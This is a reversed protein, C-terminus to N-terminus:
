AADRGVIRGIKAGMRLPKLLTMTPPLRRIPDYRDSPAAVFGPM